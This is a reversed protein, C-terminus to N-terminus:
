PISYPIFTTLEGDYYTTIESAELTFGNINVNQNFNLDRLGKELYSYAYGQFWDVFVQAIGDYTFKSVLNSGYQEDYQRISSKIFLNNNFGDQYYINNTDKASTGPSMSLVLKQNNGTLVNTLGPFDDFNTTNVTFDQTDNLWANTNVYVVELPFNNDKYAQIM